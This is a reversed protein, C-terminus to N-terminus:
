RGESDAAENGNGNEEKDEGNECSLLWEVVERGPSMKGKSEEGEGNEQVEEQGEDAASWAAREALFM